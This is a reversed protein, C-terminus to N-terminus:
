LACVLDEPHPVRLISPNVAPYRQLANERVQRLSDGVLIEQNAVAVYRGAFKDVLEEFHEQIWQQDKTM